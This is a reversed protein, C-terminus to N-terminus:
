FDKRIAFINESFSFTEEQITSIPNFFSAPLAINIHPNRKKVVNFFCYTLFSPGLHGWVEDPTRERLTNICKRVIPHSPIAAIVANGVLPSRIQTTLGAYFDCNENLIDLPKLCELNNEIFVGGFQYLIEYRLIDSKQKLDHTNKYLNGNKLYLFEIENQTWLHYEWHPHKDKWSKQNKTMKEPIPSGELWIQHIIKPIRTQKQRKQRGFLHAKYLHNVLRWKKKTQRQHFNVLDRPSYHEQVQAEDFPIFYTAEKPKRIFLCGIGVVAILLLLRKYKM